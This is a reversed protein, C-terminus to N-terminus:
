LVSVLDVSCFVHMEPVAITPAFYEDEVKECARRSSLREEHVEGHDM